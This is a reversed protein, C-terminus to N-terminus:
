GTTYIIRLMRQHGNLDDRITKKSSDVNFLANTEMAKNKNLELYVAQINKSSNALLAIREYFLLPKENPVFLAISPEFERVQRTMTEAEKVPIYPPNSIVLDFNGPLDDQLMDLLQWDVQADHLEANQRAIQLATPSIDVGVIEWDPRALKLSIPIIGSGTGLDIVRFGPKNPWDSLIWHVLEETEPRPILVNEDVLFRKDGFWAEGLVYQLPKGSQLAELDSQLQAMQKDTLEDAEKLLWDSMQWGLRSALWWQLIAKVERPEAHGFLGRTLWSRVEKGNM